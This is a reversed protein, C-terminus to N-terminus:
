IFTHLSTNSERRTVLSYDFKNNQKDFLNDSIYQAKCLQNDRRTLHYTLGRSIVTNEINGKKNKTLIYGKFSHNRKHKNQNRCGRCLIDVPQRTSDPNLGLSCNM